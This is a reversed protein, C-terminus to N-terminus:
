VQRKYVDAWGTMGHKETFEALEKKDIEGRKVALAGIMKYNAM